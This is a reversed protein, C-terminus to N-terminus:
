LPLVPKYGDITRLVRGIRQAVETPTFGPGCDDLAIDGACSHAYVAVNIANMPDQEQNLLSGIVGALVDGMGGTGMYPNGITTIYVRGFPTALITPQGKLVVYVNYEKAFAQAYGIPDNYIERIHIGTLASFEGLHPTVVVAYGKKGLTYSCQKLLSVDNSLAILGDADLVMHSDTVSQMWQLLHKRDSNSRGGGPGIVVTSNGDLQEADNCNRIMMEPRSLSRLADLNDAGSVITVKGAGSRLAGEASLIPAGYIGPSGGLIYVHGNTGKHALPSRAEVSLSDAKNWYIEPGNHVSERLAHHPFPYGISGISMYGVRERGPYFLMGVKPALLTITEDARFSSVDVNGTLGNVGSPIDISICKRTESNSRWEKCQEFIAGIQRPLEGHFGTGFVGDVVLSVDRLIHSPIVNGNSQMMENTVITITDELTHVMKWQQQFLPSGDKPNGLVVVYPTVEPMETLLRAAVLADGGNNGIGCLFLVGKPGDIEEIYTHLVEFVSRGAQEMLHSVPLGLSEIYQDVINVQKPTLLRM